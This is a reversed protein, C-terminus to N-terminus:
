LAPSTISLDRTGLGPLLPPVIKKETTLKRHQSKNRYGNWEQTVTTAHSLNRENYRLHLHCIVALCVYMGGVHSRIFHCQFNTCLQITYM